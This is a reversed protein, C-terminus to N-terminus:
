KRAAFVSSRVGEGAERAATAIARPSNAVAAAAEDLIAPTQYLFPPDCRTAASEPENTVPVAFDFDAAAVAALLRRAAIAPLYAEADAQVLVLSSEGALDSM